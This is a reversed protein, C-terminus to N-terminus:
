TIIVDLKIYVELQCCLIKYSTRVTCINLKGVLVFFLSSNGRGAVTFATLMFRYRTGTNLGTVTYTRSTASINVATISNESSDDNIENELQYTIIIGNPPDPPLWSLTVATDNVNMPM